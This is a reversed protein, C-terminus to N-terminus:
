NNENKIKIKIGNVEVIDRNRIKKGRQTVIEGNVKVLGQKILIKAEGGTGAINAYKLLQDMRIYETEIFIEKM